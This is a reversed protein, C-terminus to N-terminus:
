VAPRNEGTGDSLASTLGELDAVTVTLASHGKRRLPSPVKERFHICVGAKANTGFTLGDDKMSGRAGVATWWRYNRTIHAGSVNGLSTELKLFGFKAVLRGDDTLTVGDKKRRVGFPAWFVILRNDLSYRYTTM